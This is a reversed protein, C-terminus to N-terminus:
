SGRYKSLDFIAANTQASDAYIQNSASKGSTAYDSFNVVDGSSGASYSGRTYSYGNKDMRSM